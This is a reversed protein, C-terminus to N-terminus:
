FQHKVADCKYILRSNQDPLPRFPHTLIQECIGLSRWLSSFM